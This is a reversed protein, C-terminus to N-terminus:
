SPLPVTWAVRTGSPARDGVELRGGLIQARQTMNALGRGVGPQSGIGRGDDEVRISLQDGDCRVVVEVWGAGAHRVVNSVAERLVAIAHDAVERPVADVPGDLRLEPPFGLAREADAVIHRAEARLTDPAGPNLGTLTARLNRVARNLQGIVAQPPPRDDSEGDLGAVLQMGVSIVDQLVVDHLDRAIRQRDELLSLRAQAARARGLDVALALHAAFEVLLELEAETFLAEGPRRALAVVGLEDDTPGAAFRLAACPGFHRAVLPNLTPPPDPYAVVRHRRLEDLFGPSRPLMGEVVAAAVPGVWAAPEVVGRTGPFALAVNAAQFVEAAGDVILRYIEHETRGALVETTIRALVANMRARQVERREARRRETVDVLHLLVTHGELDPFDVRNARSEVWVQGGDPRALCLEGQAFDQGAPPDLALLLDPLDGQACIHDALTRGVIEAIEVSLLDALAQNARVVRHEGTDERRVVAKAIPARDFAIRFSEESIRRRQEAAQRDSVDRAIMTVHGHGARGSGDPHFGVRVELPVRRGGDLTVETQVVAGAQGGLAVEDAVRRLREREGAPLEVALAPLRLQDQTIGLSELAAANAYIRERSPMEIVLVADAMADLAHLVASARGAAEPNGGPVPEVTDVGATLRGTGRDQACGGAVATM